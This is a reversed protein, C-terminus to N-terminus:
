GPMYFQQVGEENTGPYGGALFNNIMVTIISPAYRIRSVMEPDASYPNMEYNWKSFILLDMWGFLGLLIILGTVVECFFDLKNGFFISNAGKVAVGIAMHVVGIIVALKMKINNTFTLLLPSQYWAPDIGFSYVCNLECGQSLDTCGVPLYM